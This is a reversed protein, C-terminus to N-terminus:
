AAPRLAIQIEDVTALTRLAKRELADPDLVVISYTPRQDTGSTTSVVDKVIWGRENLVTIWQQAEEFPM